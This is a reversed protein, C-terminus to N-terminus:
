PFCHQKDARSSKWQRGGSKQQRGRHFATLSCPFFSCFAVFTDTGESYFGGKIFAKLYSNGAKKWGACNVITKNIHQKYTKETHKKRYTNQNISHPHKVM